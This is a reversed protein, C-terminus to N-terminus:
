NGRINRRFTRVGAVLALVVGVATVVVVRHQRTVVAVEHVVEAAVVNAPGMEVQWRSRKPRPALASSPAGFAGVLGRPGWLELRVGREALRRGWEPVSAEVVLPVPCASVRRVLALPRDALVRIVGGHGTVQAQIGDIEVALDADIWVRAAAAAAHSM